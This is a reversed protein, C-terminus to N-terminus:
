KEIWIRIWQISICLLMLLGVCISFTDLGSDIVLLTWLIGGIVLVLLLGVLRRRPNSNGKESRVLKEWVYDSMIIPAAFIVGAAILVLTGVFGDFSM